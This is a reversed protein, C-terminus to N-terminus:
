DTWLLRAIYIVSIGVILGTIIVMLCNGITKRLAILRRHNDKGQGIEFVGRPFLYVLLNDLIPVFFYAALAPLLLKIIELYPHQAKIQALSDKAAKLSTTADPDSSCPDHLSIYETLINEANDLNSKHQIHAFVLIGFLLLSLIILFSGTQKPLKPIYTRNSFQSYWRTRNKLEALLQDFVSRAREPDGGAITLSIPKNFRSDLFNLSFSSEEREAVIYIYLNVIRRDRPNSYECITKPSDSILIEETGELRAVCRVLVSDSTNSEVWAQGATVFYHFDDVSLVFAKNIEEHLSFLPM